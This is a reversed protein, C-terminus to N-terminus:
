LHSCFLKLLDHQQCAGQLFSGGGVGRGRVGMGKGRSGDGRGGRGGTVDWEREGKGRGREEGGRARGKEEM